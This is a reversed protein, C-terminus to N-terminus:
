GGALERAILDERDEEGLGRSALAGDSVVELVSLGPVCKRWASQDRFGQARSLGHIERYESLTPPRGLIECAEGFRAAYRLSRKFNLLGGNRIMENVTMKKRRPM